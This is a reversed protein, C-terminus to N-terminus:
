LEGKHSFFGINDLKTQELVSIQEKSLGEYSKRALELVMMTRQKIEKESEITIRVKSYEDLDLHNLPKFVGNEYIADIVKSM